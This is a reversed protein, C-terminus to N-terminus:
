EKPMVFQFMKHTGSKMFKEADIELRACCACVDCMDAMTTSKFGTVLINGGQSPPPATPSNTPTRASDTQASHLVYISRPLNDPPSLGPDQNSVHPALFCCQCISCFDVGTPVVLKFFPKSQKLVTVSGLNRDPASQQAFATASIFLTVFLLSSTIYYANNDRM